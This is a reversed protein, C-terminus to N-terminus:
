EIRWPGCDLNGSSGARLFAAHEKETTEDAPFMSEMRLEQAAVTQPTGLTTVMSFYNLVTDGKRFSIPIMPILPAASIGRSVRNDSKRGPYAKLAALLDKTSADIFRGVAESQVRQCLSSAVEDWNDVFPRMGKPDFMLHLMNRPGTRKSMDIFCNFFRPTSENTMLVNWYRDMVLAPFPEHQRLMREVARSVAHMQASDWAAESYAPAYGAALLLANRDRLPVELAQAIRLLTQRSPISRGSEIFSIHRQSFGCELSLNFQNKGRLNRWHRLLDGLQNQPATQHQSSAQM